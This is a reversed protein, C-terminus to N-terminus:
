LALTRDKTFVVTLWVQTKALNHLEKDLRRRLHDQLIISDFADTHGVVFDIDIYLMRGNLSLRVIAEDFQHTERIKEIRQNIKTTLKTNPAAGMLQLVQIKLEAYSLYIFYLSVVIVMVPDVYLAAWATLEFFSLGYAIVFAAMVAVTIWGDLRWQYRDAKLLPSRVHKLRQSLYTSMGFCVLITVVTYALAWELRLIRGGTFLSVSAQWISLAIIMLLLLYNMMLVLPEVSAKGYHYRKPDDTKLFRSVMLMVLSMLVGAFSYLGDFILMQSRVFVGMSIGFLAMFLAGLLSVKLDREETKM